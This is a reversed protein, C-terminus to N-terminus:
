EPYIQKWDTKMSVITWGHKPGETLGKDLRGFNSERDYAFERDADDHHVIMAFSSGGSSNAWELMQFDGDSNGFAAIPRRGIHTYVGIPKGSGDDVFDIEPLRVIEPKGDNVEYKSKISSGVVNQPPIGYVQEVWPRMFEIGGGSVIFVEFGNAKLYSILELMPQYVMSTYLKGTKPHKATTIWDSAIKAFEDSTMGAHTAGVLQMLGREGSSALGSIDGALVSKFPEADKWDPHQPALSKIRDLVFALQVYMPQEGWLTGDNDFVAVREAPDVFHDGGESSVRAVFDVIAQKTAGDNWSPLDDARSILPALTLFFAVGAAIGHVFSM